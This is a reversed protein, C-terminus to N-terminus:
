QAPIMGHLRNGMARCLRHLDEFRNHQVVCCVQAGVGVCVPTFGCVHKGYVQVWIHVCLCLHVCWVCMSLFLTGRSGRVCRLDDLMGPHMQPPADTCENRHHDDLTGPYMPPQADTCEGM